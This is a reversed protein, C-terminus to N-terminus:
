RVDEVPSVSGRRCCVAFVRDHPCLQILPQLVSQQLDAIITDTELPVTLGTEVNRVLAVNGQEPVDLYEDSSLGTHHIQQTIRYVSNITAAYIPSYV